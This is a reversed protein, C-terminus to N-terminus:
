DFSNKWMCLSSDKTILRISLGEYQLFSAVADTLQLAMAFNLLKNDLTGVLVDKKDNFVTQKETIGAYRRTVVLEAKENYQYAKWWDFSAGCIDIKRYGAGRLICLATPLVNLPPIGILQRKLLARYWIPFKTRLGNFSPKLPIYLDNYFVFEINPNRSIHEVITCGKSRRPMYLTLAWDVDEALTRVTDQRLDIWYDSVDDSWFYHDQLIYKSPKFKKLLMKPCRNVAVFNYPVEFKLYDLDETLSPGNCLLVARVRQNQRDFKISPGKIFFLLISRIVQCVFKLFRLHRM